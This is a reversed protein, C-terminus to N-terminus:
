KLKDIFVKLNIPENQWLEEEENLGWAQIMYNEPPDFVLLDDWHTKCYAHQSHKGVKKGQLDTITYNTINASTMTREKKKSKYPCNKCGHHCCKGRKLLEERSLPKYSM